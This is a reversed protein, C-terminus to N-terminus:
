LEASIGIYGSTSNNSLLEYPRNTTAGTVTAQLRSINNFAGDFVLASVAGTFGAGDFCILTSYEIASPNARMTVPNPVPFQVLTTAKAYGLGFSQYAGSGGFRYYYRQCAALEGQITGTATQFATAVSGAEIQFGWFDFTNNQAGLSGTRANFNSGASVWPQFSIYSTGATTGITKGSISPVTVTASYRAWSTSLTVQGFSQDVASSPSGGSGFNQSMELYVKPTGSNAKAWFSITVTQGALTRVDEIRQQTFVLSATASQSTTAIRLFNVGEYGAVPATGPTFTQASFIASAGGSTDSTYNIWRDFGYPVTTPNTVSAFARQNVFFDGNIIKNKGAAFNAQYRLGTATSSDAVLTEGNAGVTLVAPTDNASAGLLDGKAAFITPSIGSADTTWTFDMDTGSAKALVQGTTGGKLDVLSADIADGLTEIAVAGDKVLDTSTPVAWGFNPTTTAM